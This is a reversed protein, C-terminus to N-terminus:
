EKLSYEGTCTFTAGGGAKPAAKCTGSAQIGAFKGTGSTAKWSNTASELTGEKTMKATGEYTYSISDGNALTEVFVGKLTDEMGKLEHFETGTGKDNKVGAIEGSAAQCQVKAIMFAHDAKDGAQLTHAPDADGCNWTVAVKGGAHAASAVLLVCCALLLNRM